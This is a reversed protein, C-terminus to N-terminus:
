GKSKLVRLLLQFIVSVMSANHKKLLTALKLQDILSSIPDSSRETMQNLSTAWRPWILLDPDLCLSRLRDISLGLRLIRYQALEARLLLLRFRRMPNLIDGNALHPMNNSKIIKKSPPFSNLSMTLNKSYFNSVMRSLM